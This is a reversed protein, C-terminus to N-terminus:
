GLLGELKEVKETLSQLQANLDDIASSIEDQETAMPMQWSKIASDMAQDMQNKIVESQNITNKMASFVMNSYSDAFQEWLIHSKDLVKQQDQADDGSTAAITLQTLHQQIFELAETLDTFTLEETGQVHNIQGRWQVQPEDQSDTWIHQTFRIMFSAISRQDEVM